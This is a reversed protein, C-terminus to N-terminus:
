FYNSYGKFYNKFIRFANNRFACKLGGFITNQNENLFLIKIEWFHYMEIERFYMESDWFHCIEIEKFYCMEIERLRCMAMEWIHCM